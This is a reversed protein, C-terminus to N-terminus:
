DLDWAHPIDLPGSLFDEAVFRRRKPLIGQLVTESPVVACDQEPKGNPFVARLDSNLRIAVDAESALGASAFAHKWEKSNLVEITKVCVIQLWAQRMMPGHNLSHSQWADRLARKVRVFGSIDLAQLAHTTGPPVPCVWLNLNYATFLVQKSLHCSCTDMCLIPQWTPHPTLASKIAQLIQCMVSTTNWSSNLRLFTMNAPADASVARAMAAGVLRRNCILFQPMCPQLTSQSCILGCFTVMGRRASLHARDGGRAKKIHRIVNGPGKCWLPIACEDFNLLLAKKASPVVHLLWGGFRWFHMAKLIPPGIQSGRKPEM